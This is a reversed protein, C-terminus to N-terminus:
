APGDNNDEGTGKHDNNVVLPSISTPIIPIEPSSHPEDSKEADGVLHDKLFAVDRSRILKRAM